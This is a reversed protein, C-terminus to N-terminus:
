YLCKAGVVAFMKRTCPIMQKQTAEKTCNNARRMDSEIEGVCGWVRLANVTEVAILM